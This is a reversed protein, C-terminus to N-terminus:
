VVSKRDKISDFFQGAYKTIEAPVEKTAILTSEYKSKFGM